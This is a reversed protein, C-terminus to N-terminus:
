KIKRSEKIKCLLRIRVLPEIIHYIEQAYPELEECHTKENGCLTCFGLHYVAYSKCKGDKIGIFLLYNNKLLTFNVVAMEYTPDDETKTASDM